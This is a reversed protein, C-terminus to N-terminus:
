IEAEEPAPGFRNPGPKGPLCLIVLYCLSIALSVVSAAASQGIGLLALLVAAGIPALLWWGSLDRDHLRRVTAGLNPPLLLLYVVSGFIAGAKLPLLIFIAGAAANVLFIFLMLWWFESRSARGGFRFFYKPGLCKKVSQKFTMGSDKQKKFRRAAFIAVM